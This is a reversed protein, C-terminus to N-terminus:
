LTVREALTDSIDGARALADVFDVFACRTDAPYENQTARRYLGPATKVMHRPLKPDFTGSGLVRGATIAEKTREAIFEASPPGKPLHGTATRDGNM